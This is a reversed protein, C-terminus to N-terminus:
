KKRKTYRKAPNRRTHILKIVVVSTKGINFILIFPFNKLRIQRYTKYKKEYGDANLAISKLTKEFTEYFRLGLGVVKSEYYEVVKSLEKYVPDFVVVRRKIM